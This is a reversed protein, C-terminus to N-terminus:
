NEKKKHEFFHFNWPTDFDKVTYHNNFTRPTGVESLGSNNIRTIYRNDELYKIRSQVTTPSIGLTKAVTPISPWCEGKTGACSVLYAYVVFAYPDLDMKFIDNSLMFFGEQKEYKKKM